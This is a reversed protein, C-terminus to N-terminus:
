RTTRGARSYQMRQYGGYASLVSSAAGLYGATKANGANERNGKASFEDLNAQDLYGTSELQGKYRVNLADLEADQSSQQVIDAASGESGIGAETLAARTAGMARASGRRTAEENADAVRLANGSKARMMQANFDDAAAARKYSASQADGQSISSYAGVAAVGASFGM